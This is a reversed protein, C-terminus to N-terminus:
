HTLAYTTVAATIGLAAAVTEGAIVIGFIAIPIFGGSCDAAADHSIPSFSSSNYM